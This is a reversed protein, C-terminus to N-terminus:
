ILSVQVSKGIRMQNLKKWEQQTRESLFSARPPLQRKVAKNLTGQNSVLVVLQKARTFASYLLQRHLLAPATPDLYIVVVPAENGQFKHITTAFGHTLLAYQDEEFVVPRNGFNVTMALTTANIQAIHGIMGNSVGLAKDNQLCLVPDGVAWFAGGQAAKALRNCETAAARTSTLIQITSQEVGERALANVCDWVQQPAPNMTLYHLCDPPNGELLGAEWYERDGAWQPFPTLQPMEGRCIRRANEPIQSTEAQRFVETLRCLAMPNDAGASRMLHNLIDGYGVSPLQDPDGIFCLQPQRFELEFLKAQLAYAIELDLLSTEDIFVIDAWAIGGGKVAAHITGVWLRDGPTITGGSAEFVRERLREAALATPATLYIRYGLQYCINVLLGTLTSKGTGPGGVLISVQTRLIRRAAQIQGQGFKRNSNDLAEILALEAKAQQVDSPALKGLKALRTATAGERYDVRQLFAIAPQTEGQRIVVYGQAELLKIADTLAMPVDAGFYNVWQTELDHLPCGCSGTHLHQQLFYLLGLEARQQALDATQGQVRAIADVSPFSLGRHLNLTSYPNAQLQQLAKEGYETALTTSIEIPVQHPCLIRDILFAIKHPVQRNGVKNWAWSLPYGKLYEHLDGELGSALWLPAVTHAIAQTMGEFCRTLYQAVESLAFMENNTSPAAIAPIDM